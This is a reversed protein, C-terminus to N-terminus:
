ASFSLVPVLRTCWYLSLEWTKWAMYLKRQALCMRVYCCMETSLVITYLMQIDRTPSQPLVGLIRVRVTCNQQSCLTTTILLTLWTMCNVWLECKGVTHDSESMWLVDGTSSQFASHNASAVNATSKNHWEQRKWMWNPQVHTFKHSKEPM